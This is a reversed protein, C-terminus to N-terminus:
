SKRRTALQALKMAVHGTGKRLAAGKDAYARATNYKAAQSTTGHLAGAKVERARTAFKGGAYTGPSAVVRLADPAIGALNFQGTINSIAQPISKLAFIGVFIM